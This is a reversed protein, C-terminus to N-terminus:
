ESGPASDAEFTSDGLLSIDVITLHIDSNKWRNSLALISCCKKCFNYLPLKGSRLVRATFSNLIEPYQSQGNLAWAVNTRYIKGLRRSPFRRLVNCYPLGFRTLELRGVPRCDCVLHCATLRGAEDMPGPIGHFESPGPGRGPRRHAASEQEPSRCESRM